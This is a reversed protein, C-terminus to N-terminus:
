WIKFLLLGFWHFADATVEDTFGLGHGQAHGIRKQGGGDAGALGGVNMGCSHLFDTVPERQRRKANGPRGVFRHRDFTVLNAELKVRRFSQM